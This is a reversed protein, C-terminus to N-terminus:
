EEALAKMESMMGGFIADQLQENDKINAIWEGNDLPEICVIEVDKICEKKDLAALRAFLAEYFGDLEEDGVTDNHEKLYDTWVALYERGFDYTKIRVKVITYDDDPDDDSKTGTIEYDFDHLKKLFTDFDAKGEESLTKELDSVESGVSESTKLADLERAVKKEPASLSSCGALLLAACLLLSLMSAALRMRNKKATRKEAM